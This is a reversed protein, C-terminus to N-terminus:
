IEHNPYHKMAIFCYIYEFNNLYSYLCMLMENIQKPAQQSSTRLVVLTSKESVETIATQSFLIFASMVTTPITLENIM